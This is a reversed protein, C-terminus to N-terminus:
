KFLRPLLKVLDRRWNPWSHDGEVLEFEPQLGADRLKNVFRQTYEPEEWKGAPVWFLHLKSNVASPNALATQIKDRPVTSPSLAAIWTFEDPYNLGLTFAECGGMSLGCFARGDGDKRVSYSSEVLPRVDERLDKIFADTNPPLYKGFPEGNYPLAHANSMVIVMPVASKNSILTDAIWNAKGEVTWSRETGGFGQTLYLVPLAPGSGTYGPPTYVVVERLVGLAASFYQHTHLVGHPVDQWDWPAPPNAPMQIVSANLERSAQMIPNLPDNIELGNVLFFYHWIGAPMPTVSFTWIGNADRAMPERKWGSWEGCIKVDTMADAHLHFVVNGAKDPTPPPLAVSKQEPIDKTMMCGTLISLLAASAFHRSNNMSPEDEFGCEGRKTM